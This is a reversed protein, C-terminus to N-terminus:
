PNQQRWEKLEAEVEAKDFENASAIFTENLFAKNDHVQKTEGAGLMNNQINTWVDPRLEGYIGNKPTHLSIGVNLLLQGLDDRIWNEPVAKRAISAVVEPNAKAAYVSKAWARFFRKMVEQDSSIRNAMMVFSNAPQDGFESPLFNKVEINNARISVLDSVGGVVASVQGNRLSNAILPASEGLVVVTVDDPTLGAIKLSTTLLSRDSEGVIGITTGKLDALSKAPNSDLVFIGEIAGHMVEYVVDVDVGLEQAHIVESADMSALLAKGNQLFAITPLDGGPVIELAIGEEKFYGMAEGVLVPYWSATRPVPTLVTITTEGAQVVGTGTCTALLLAAIATRLKM